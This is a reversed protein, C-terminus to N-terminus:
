DVIIKNEKEKGSFFKTGNPKNAQLIFEAFYHASNHYKQLVVPHTIQFEVCWNNESKGFLRNWMRQLIQVM